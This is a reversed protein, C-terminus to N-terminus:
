RILLVILKNTVFLLLNQLITLLNIPKVTYATLIKLLIFM